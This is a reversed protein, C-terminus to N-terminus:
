DDNDQNGQWGNSYYMPPPYAPQEPAVYYGPAPAVVVPPAYWQQPQVYVPPPRFVPVRVREVVTRCRQVNQYSWGRNTMRDGMVAGAVAGAATAVARGNGRGIQNGLVGGAIGGVIAGTPNEVQVPVQENWCEQRPREVIRYEQAQAMGAAFPLALVALSLLKNM